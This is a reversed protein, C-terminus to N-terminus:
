HQLAIGVTIIYHVDHENLSEHQRFSRFWVIFCLRPTHPAIRKGILMDKNLTCVFAGAARLKMM